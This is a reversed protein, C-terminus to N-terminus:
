NESDLTTQIFNLVDENDEYELAKTLVRDREERNKMNALISIAIIRERPKADARSLYDKTIEISRESLNKSSWQTTLQTINDLSGTDDNKTFAMFGGIVEEKSRDEIKNMMLQYTDTDDNQKAELALLTYVEPTDITAIKERIEEETTNQYTEVLLVKSAETGIAELFDIIYKKDEISTDELNLLKKFMTYTEKGSENQLKYILTSELSAIAINNEDGKRLSFIKDLIDLPVSNEDFVQVEKNEEIPAQKSAIKNKNYNIKEYKVEKDTSTVDKVKSDKSYEKKIKQNINTRNDNTIFFYSGIFFLIAIGIIYFKM